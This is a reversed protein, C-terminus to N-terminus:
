IHILSLVSVHYLDVPGAFVEKAGPHRGNAYVHNVTLLMVLSLITALISITVALRYFDIRETKFM